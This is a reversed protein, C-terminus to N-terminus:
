DRMLWNFDWVRAWLLEEACAPLGPAHQRVVSEAGNIWKDRVSWYFGMSKGGPAGRVPQCDQRMIGSLRNQVM